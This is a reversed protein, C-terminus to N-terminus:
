LGAHNSRVECEPVHPRFDSPLFRPEKGEQCCPLFRHM